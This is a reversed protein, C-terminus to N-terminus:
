YLYTLTCKMIKLNREQNTRISSYECLNCPYSLSSPIIMAQFIKYRKERVKLQITWIWGNERKWHMGLTPRLDWARLHTHTSLSFILQPGMWSSRLPSGKKGDKRTWANGGDRTHVHSSYFFSSWPNGRWRVRRRYYRGVYYLDRASSAFGIESSGLNERSLLGSLFKGGGEDRSPSFNRDQPGINAWPRYLLLYYNCDAQMWCAFTCYTSSDSNLILKSLLAVISAIWPYFCM